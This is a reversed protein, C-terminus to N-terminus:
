MSCGYQVTCIAIYMMYYSALKLAVATTGTGTLGYSTVKVVLSSLVTPATAVTRTPMLLLVDLYAVRSCKSQQAAKSYSAATLPLSCPLSAGGAATEGQQLTAIYLIYSYPVAPVPPVIRICTYYHRYATGYL